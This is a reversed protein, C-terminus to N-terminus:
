TAVSALPFPVHFWPAQLAEQLPMIMMIGLFLCFHRKTKITWKGKLSISFEVVHLGMCIEVGDHTV